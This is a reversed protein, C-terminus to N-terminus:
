STGKSDDFQHFQHIYNLTNKINAKSEKSNNKTDPPHSHHLHCNDIFHCESNSDWTHPPNSFFKLHMNRYRHGPESAVHLWSPAAAATWTIPACPHVPVQRATLLLDPLIQSSQPTELAQGLPVYCWAKHYGSLTPVGMFKRNFSLKRKLQSTNVKSDTFATHKLLFFFGIRIFM